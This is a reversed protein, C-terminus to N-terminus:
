CETRLHFSKKQTLQDYGLTSLTIGRGTDKVGTWALAPDLYDCRNMFWTGVEAREGLSIAADVDSTWVSGTLGYHSDNIFNMAQYDDAVPMIGVTPGFTEERMFDMNHDVNILVQPALYATTGIDSTFQNADVLAKAGAKQALKIQNRINNAAKTNVVPGLTTTTELPNGLKYQNVQDVFGTIFDDFYQQAVYIREIGCCSQGSNFLAGDVLGAIAHSLNADERVYAADKGGLELGMNIFRKSLKKQLHVGTEASGTFAIFKIEPAFMLSEADAHTLHLHQFVGDPFGAALFSETLREACRATQAAHKLIVTNGALLAPIITNIATLYPYNWPAIVFVTGLPKKRIFRKFGKKEPLTIDALATQACQMMYTTREVVGNIEGLAQHAPRGMQWAIEDALENKKATFKKLFQECLKIRAELNLQQWATQSKSSLQLAQEIENATAYPSEFYIENNIPSIIQLTHLATKM